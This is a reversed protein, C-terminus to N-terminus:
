GTVRFMLFIPMIVVIPPLMRTTLIVFMIPTTAACASLRSFGYAALTGIILALVVGTM